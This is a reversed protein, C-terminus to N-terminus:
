RSSHLKLERIADSAIWRASTTGQARVREACELAAARLRANRKGINRLAWNVGKRVFNRGDFAYKEILPLANLFAEDPAAKDHIAIAAIMAFAARRVFERDDKAWKRIKAWAHPTRDFLDYACADCIGWSDLDAAWADMTARSIKKPDGVFSALVRAARNGTAWLEEALAQDRGLKKAVARLQPTNLGPRLEELIIQIRETM